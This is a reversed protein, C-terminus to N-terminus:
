FMARTNSNFVTRFFLNPFNFAEKEPAQGFYVNLIDYEQCKMQTIKAAFLFQSWIQNM